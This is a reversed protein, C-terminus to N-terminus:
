RENGRREQELHWEIYDSLEMERAAKWAELPRPLPHKAVSVDHIRLAENLKCVLKIKLDLDIQTIMADSLMNKLETLTEKLNDM